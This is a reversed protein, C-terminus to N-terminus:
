DQFVFIYGDDALEKLAGRLNREGRGAIGYPTRVLIIPLPGPPDKPAHITTFLGVGDRAPIMAETRTFKGEAAQPRAPAAAWTTVFLVGALALLGSIRRM